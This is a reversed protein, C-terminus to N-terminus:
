YVGFKRVRYDSFLALHVMSQLIEKFHLFHHSFIAKEIAVGKSINLSKAINGISFEAYGYKSIFDISTQIIKDKTKAM